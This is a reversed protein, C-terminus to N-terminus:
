ELNMFFPRPQRANQGIPIDREPDGDHRMEFNLLLEGFCAGQSDQEPEQPDTAALICQALGTQRQGLIKLDQELNVVAPLRMRWNQIALQSPNHM